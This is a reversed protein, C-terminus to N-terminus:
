LRQKLENIELKCQEIQQLSTATVRGSQLNRIRSEILTIHTNIMLKRNVESIPAAATVDPAATRQLPPTVFKSSNAPNAAHGLVEYHKETVTSPAQTEVTEPQQSVPAFHQETELYNATVTLKHEPHWLALNEYLTQVSVNAAKAIHQAMARITLTDGYRDSLSNAADKIRQLKEQRNKIRIGTAVEEGAKKDQMPFRHEFVWKAWDRVRKLLDNKHGCFENFGNLQTVKETVYNVIKTIDTYGLFVRAYECVKFLLSNTQGDGTWGDAIITELESKWDNLRKNNTYGKPKHLQRATVCSQSLLEFDQWQSNSKWTDNFREVSNTLPALNTLESQGYRVIYSGDQLPLRHANYESNYTKTNPFTELVGSAIELRHAELAYRLGCALSFTAIASPLPFYIHLGGSASSRVLIYEHLGISSCAQLVKDFNATSNLPHNPSKRDIDIMCYQAEDGFRVGIIQRNDQHKEWLTRATLPYRVETKWDRKDRPTYIWNFLYPFKSSFEAAVSYLPLLQHPSLKSPKSAIM